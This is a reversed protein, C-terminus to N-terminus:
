GGVRDDGGGRVAALTEKGVELTRIPFPIVIGEERFRRHLRKVFEHKIGYSDTFERCKMIVNFNVSFEAFASFRVLPEFEPVGGQVSRMVDRAVETVVAEVRQLDSRYHVGVPVVISVEKDPLSYNTIVGDILKINPVIVLNNNLLRIRTSRWGIKVVCGEEGTELKVFDGITVPKDALVQMGAFFNALTNQLALAVALSGIGLSAVLPTISVGVSDLFIVVAISIIVARSLGVLIGRSAKLFELRTSYYRILERILKDFFLVAALLGTIGFAMQVVKDVTSDLTLMREVLFLGSAFILITAPLSIANVLVDDVQSTTRAAFVHIRSFALKKVGMLVAVWIVLFVPTVIWPSIGTGNDLLGEM